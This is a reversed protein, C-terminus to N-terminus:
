SHRTWRKGRNKLWRVLVRACIEAQDIPPLEDLQAKFTSLEEDTMARNVARRSEPGLCWVRAAFELLRLLRRM